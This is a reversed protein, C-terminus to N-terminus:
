TLSFIASPGGGPDYTLESVVLSGTGRPSQLITWHGTDHAVPVRRTATQPQTHALTWHFSRGQGRDEKWFLLVAERDAMLPATHVHHVATGTGLPGVVRSQAITSFHEAYGGWDALVAELQAVEVTEWLCEVRLTPWGEPTESAVLYRCRDDEKLLEFGSPTALGAAILLAATPAPM